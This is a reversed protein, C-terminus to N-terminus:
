RPVNYEQNYGDHRHNVRGILKAFYVRDGVERDIFVEIKNRWGIQIWTFQYLDFLEHTQNKRCSMNALVLCIRDNVLLLDGPTIEIVRMVHM